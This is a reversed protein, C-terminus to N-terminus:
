DPQQVFLRFDDKITLFLVILRKESSDIFRSYLFKWSARVQEFQTLQKEYDPHDGFYHKSATKAISQGNKMNEIGLTYPLYKEPDEKLGRIGKGGKALM